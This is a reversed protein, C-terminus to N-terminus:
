DCVHSREIRSGWRMMRQVSPGVLWAPQRAKIGAGVNSLHQWLLYFSEGQYLPYYENGSHDRSHTLAQARPALFDVSQDINAGVADAFLQNDGANYDGNDSTLNDDFRNIQTLLTQYQATFWQCMEREATIDAGTVSGRTQDYPFPFKPQWNSPSPVFVPLPPALEDVLPGATAPGALAVVASVAVAMVAWPTAGYRRM